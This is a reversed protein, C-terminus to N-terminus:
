TSLKNIESLVYLPFFLFTHVLVFCFFSIIFQHVMETNNGFMLLYICGIINLLVIFVIMKINM